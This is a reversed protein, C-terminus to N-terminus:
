AVTRSTTLPLDFSDPTVVISLVPQLVKITAQSTKGEARLTILTQGSNVATVLGTVSDITAVAQNNSEWALKRGKLPIAAGANDRLTITWSNFTGPLEISDLGPQLQMTAIPVPPTAETCAATFLAVMTLCAAAALQTRSSKM